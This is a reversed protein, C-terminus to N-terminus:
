MSVRLNCRHGTQLTLLLSRMSVRRRTRLASVASGNEPPRRLRQKMLMMKRNMGLPSRTQSGRRGSVDSVKESTPCFSNLSYLVIRSKLDTCRRGSEDITVQTATEDEPVYDDDPSEGRPQRPQRPFPDEPEEFETSESDDSSSHGSAGEQTVIPDHTVGKSVDADKSVDGERTNQPDM